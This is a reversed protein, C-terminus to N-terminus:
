QIDLLIEAQAYIRGNSVLESNIQQLRATFEGSYEDLGSGTLHAPIKEYLLEQYGHWGMTRAMGIDEPYLGTIQAPLESSSAWLIRPYVSLAPSNSYLTIGVGQATQPIGVQGNKRINGDLLYWLGTNYKTHNDGASPFLKWALATLIADRDTVLFAMAVQGEGVGSEAVGCAVQIRFRRDIHNGARLDSATTKGFDVIRPYDKVSCSNGRTIHVTPRWVFPYNLYHYDKAGPSSSLDAFNALSGVAKKEYEGVANVFQGTDRDHQFLSYAIPENNNVGTYTYTEDSIPNSDTRTDNVRVFEIIVGDFATPPVFLRTTGTWRVSGGRPQSCDGNTVYGKGVYHNEGDVTSPEACIMDRLDLYRGQWNPTYYQTSGRGYPLVRVGLYKYHTYYVGKLDMHPLTSSNQNIEEIKVLNNNTNWGTNLAYYQRLVPNIWTNGLVSTCEFLIDSPSYNPHKGALPTLTMRALVTGVPQIRENLNIGISVENSYQNHSSATAGAGRQPVSVRPLDPGFEPRYPYSLGDDPFEAFGQLGSVRFGCKAHALKPVLSFLSIAILLYKLNNKM